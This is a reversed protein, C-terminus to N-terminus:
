WWEADASSSRRGSVRARRLDERTYRAGRLHYLATDAKDFLPSNQLRAILAARSLESQDFVKVLKAFSVVTGKDKQSQRDAYVPIEKPTERAGPSERVVKVRALAANVEAVGLEGMNRIAYLYGEGAELLLLLDGVNRIRARYLANFARMGLGLVNLSDGSSVMEKSQEVM